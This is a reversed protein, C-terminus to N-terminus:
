RTRAGRAADEASGAASRERRVLALMEEYPGVLFAEDGGRLTTGRRPPYELGRRTRRRIAGVRLQAGLVAMAVGDLGRGARVPLRAVLLPLPGVYFTGLVHLGLAAGAFWPAALAATSVVHQFGFATEVTRALDRDFLRLAVPVDRWRRGLLDRVALGTELNTLDDSTLVAVAGATALNAQELTASMTADGVIVPVGLARLRGLYRNSEDGEVVVVDHGAEHLLEVVRTGVAGLGVVVTHGTLGPVRRRGLAQAIQRSVLLNTLMAFFVTALMAGVIMLVIAYGRLWATQDRFNFDGYGVTAVTEVTFYLADLITMASGGEPDRYGLHLVATSVGVLAALAALAWRMPRDVQRSLARYLATAPGPAWDPRRGEPWARGPRLTRLAEARAPRPRGGGQGTADLEEPTGLLTVADGARVALDRGPCVVPDVPGAGAGATREVAIPTLDGYLDRLTGDRPAPLTAAVFPVEELQLRHARTGLCTEVVSPAALAAVDLVSGAGTVAALARGVAPNTLQVVVPVDPRLERARLATELTHLDDSEVCVVARATGIGAGVLTETLRSSGTLHPIGWGRVVRVLRPDPEDDVVTVPIGALHLQEVTRLGLGHLGCVVVHGDPADPRGDPAAPSTTPDTM